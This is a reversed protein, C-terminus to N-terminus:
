DSVACVATKEAKEKWEVKRYKRSFIYMRPMREGSASVCAM